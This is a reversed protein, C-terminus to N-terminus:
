RRRSDSMARIMTAIRKAGTFTYDCQSFSFMSRVLKDRLINLREDIYSDGAVCRYQIGRNRLTFLFDVKRHEAESM